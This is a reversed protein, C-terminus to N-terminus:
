KGAGVLLLIQEKDLDSYAKKLTTLQERGRAINDRACMLLM